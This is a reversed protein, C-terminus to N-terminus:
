LDVIKGAFPAKIQCYTLNLEAEALANAAVQFDYEAKKLEFDSTFNGARLEKKDTYNAKAFDFQAKMQKVKLQYSADDLTTLLSDKKFSEGLRFHYPRLTSDVRSAIVAERFPFLVVKVSEAAALQIMLLLAPLIHGLYKIM